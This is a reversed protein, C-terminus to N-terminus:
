MLGWDELCENIYASDSESCAEWPTSPDALLENISQIMEDDGADELMNLCWPDGENTLIWGGYVSDIGTYLSFQENGDFRSTIVTSNDFQVTAKKM